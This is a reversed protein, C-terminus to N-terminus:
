NMYYLLTCMQSFNRLSLSQQLPSSIRQLFQALSYIRSNPNNPAHCLFSYSSFAERFLGLQLECSYVPGRLLPLSSSPSSCYSSPIMTNTDSHLRLVGPAWCLGDSGRGQMTFMYRDLYVKCKSLLYPIESTFMISERGLSIHLSSTCGKKLAKSRLISHNVGANWPYAHVM